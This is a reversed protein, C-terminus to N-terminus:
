HHNPPLFHLRFMGCNEHCKYKEPSVNQRAQLSVFPLYTYETAVAAGIVPAALGAALLAFSSKM